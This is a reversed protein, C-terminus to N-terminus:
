RGGMKRWYIAVAAVSSLAIGIIVYFAYPQDRLPFEVNMSFISVILTPFMLGITILNLTKMLINLNNGVISARADMLSALINNYIEAQRYCQNNEIIMDDLFEVQEQSFKIKESNNKLREFLTGNASISQLYYVLSKQLTFLQTLYKNELSKNIKSEISETLSTIIKLHEMFHSISSYIIKLALDNLSLIKLLKKHDFVPVDENLVIILKDKFLFLGTSSVKFLLRDEGSYSKPRKFIVAFHDPEFEFRPQEDPDLASSLTHADLKYFDVLTKRENEDPCIYLLVSMDHPLCETISGQILNYTKLM